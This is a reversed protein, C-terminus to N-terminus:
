FIEKCEFDRFLVFQPHDAYAMMKVETDTLQNHSEIFGGVPVANM